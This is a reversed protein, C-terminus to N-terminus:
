RRVRSLFGTFRPFQNSAVFLPDLKNAYEPTLDLLQSQIQLPVEHIGELILRNAVEKRSEREYENQARYTM